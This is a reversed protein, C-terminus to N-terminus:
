FSWGIGLSYRIDEPDSGPARVSDYRFEIKAEAFLRGVITARLGADVNLNYDDFPHDLAPLYELNHFLTVLAHPKWSVHYAIRAAFHENDGDNRFDEYVWALGLESSLHFTPTEYWQYGLGLSPTVRLDLDAVRDREARVAGFLYLKESVFYDYKAFGFAHDTTTSTGGDKDAKNGYFYGAELTVRDHESRRTVDVHAGVDTTETNGRRVQADVTLAGTWRVPLQTIGSVQKLAITQPAGGPTTVVQVTGDAGSTVTSRVTAKGVRLAIPEVTSFTKIKDLDVSVVGMVETRITLKGATMEVIKGSLRDGNLFLVEDAAVSGAFALCLLLGGVLLGTLLV